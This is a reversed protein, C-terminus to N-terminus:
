FPLLSPIGIPYGFLHMPSSDSAESAGLLEVEGGVLHSFLGV